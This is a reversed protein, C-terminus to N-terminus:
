ERHQAFENRIKRLTLDEAASGFGVHGRDLGQQHLGKAQALSECHRDAGALGGLNAGDGPGVSTVFFTTTPAPTQALLVVSTSCLLPLAVLASIKLGNKM